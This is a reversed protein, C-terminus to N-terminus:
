GMIIISIAKKSTISPLPWLKMAAASQCQSVVGVVAHGVRGDAMERDDMRGRYAPIQPRIYSVATSHSTLCQSDHVAWTPAHIRGEPSTRSSMASLVTSPLFCGSFYMRGGIYIMAAVVHCM